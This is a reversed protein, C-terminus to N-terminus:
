IIHGEIFLDGQLDDGPGLRASPPHLDSLKHGAEAYALLVCDALSDELDRPAYQSGSDRSAFLVALARLAVPNRLIVKKTKRSM